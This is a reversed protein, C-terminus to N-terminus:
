APSSRLGYVGGGAFLYEVRMVADGKEGPFAYGILAVPDGVKLPVIKWAQMRSLPALEITWRPERRTPLTTAALLAASDFSATQAPLARQKLDAPLKLDAAPALEFSAHPNAWNVTAVSGEVYFPKSGDFSSWGHHALALRPILPATLGAAAGLVLSRRQM